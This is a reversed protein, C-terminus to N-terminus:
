WWYSSNVVSPRGKVNATTGCKHCIWTTANQERVWDHRKCYEESSPLPRPERLKVVIKQKEPMYYLSINYTPDSINM